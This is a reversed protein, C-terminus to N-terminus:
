VGEEAEDEPTKHEITDGTTAEAEENMTYCTRVRPTRRRARWARWAASPVGAHGHGPGSTSSHGDPESVM